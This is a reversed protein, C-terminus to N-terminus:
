KHCDQSPVADNLGLEKYATVLTKIRKQEPDETMSVANIPFQSKVHSGILAKVSEKEQEVDALGQLLRPDGQKLTDKLLRLTTVALYSANAQDRLGKLALVLTSQLAKTAEPSREKGSSITGLTMFGLLIHFQLILPDYTEFGHRLYYQRLVTEFRMKADAVVHNATDRAVSEPDLGQTEVTAFPELLNIVVNFYHLAQFNFAGWATLGRATKSKDDMTSPYADFIKMRDGMSIAQVIYSLGIEDMSNMSYTIATVLAQITTLSDRRAELERIRRAEALFQYQLAQPKWFETRHAAKTHAHCARCPGCQRSVIFLLERSWRGHRRLLPGQPFFRVDSIRAVFVDQSARVALERKSSSADM